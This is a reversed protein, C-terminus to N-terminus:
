FGDVVMEIPFHDSVERAEEISIRMSLDFRFVDASGSVTNTSVFRDYANNNDAVTTRIGDQILWTFRDSQERLRIRNMQEESVYHGGANFDGMVIWGQTIDNNQSSYTDYVDVLHDIEAVADTPKAHLGTLFLRAGSNNQIVVSFPPREFWNEQDEFQLTSVISLRSPDYIFAYQEKSSSRGLRESVVYEYNTGQQKNMTDVLQHLATDTHDRIEQIFIIHYRALIKTLLTVVRPKSMTKTGFVQINFSGIHLREASCQAAICLLIATAVILAVKM